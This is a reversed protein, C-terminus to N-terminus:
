SLDQEIDRMTIAAMEKAAMWQCTQVLGNCVGYLADPPLDAGTMGFQALTQVLITLNLRIAMFAAEVEPMDPHDKLIDECLGDLVTDLNQDM